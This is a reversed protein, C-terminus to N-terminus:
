KDDDGLHYNELDEVGEPSQKENYDLVSKRSKNFAESGGTAKGEGTEDDIGTFAEGLAQSVVASISEDLWDNGLCGELDKEISKLTGHKIDKSGHMPVVTSCLGCQYVAHSGKQRVHDCGPERNKRLKKALKKSSMVTREALAEKVLHGIVEEITEMTEMDIPAEKTKPHRQEWDEPVFDKPAAVNGYAQAGPSHNAAAMEAHGGTYDVHKILKKTADPEHDRVLKGQKYRESGGPTNSGQEEIKESTLAKKMEDTFVYHYKNPKFGKPPKGDIKASNDRPHAIGDSTGIAVTKIEEPAHTLRDVGRSHGAWLDAKPPTSFPEGSHMQVDYGEDELFSRIEKYFSSAEQSGEIYKPNGKIIVATKRTESNSEFFVSKLSLKGESFDLKLQKAKQTGYKQHRQKDLRAQIEDGYNDFYVSLMKKREKHTLAKVKKVVADRSDPGHYIVAAQILDQLVERENEGEVHELAGHRRLFDVLKQGTLIHDVHVNNETFWDGPEVAPPYEDYYGEVEWNEPRRRWGDGYDDDEEIEKLVALMGWRRIDEITVEGISKGIKKGIHYRIAGEAKGMDDKQAAFTVGELTDDDFEMGYSDKVFDGLEGSFGYKEISEKNDIVTGHYLTREELSDVGFLRKFQGPAFSLGNLRMVDNVYEDDELYVDEEGDGDIDGEVEPVFDVPEEVSNMRPWGPLDRHRSDSAVARGAGGGSATGGQEKLEREEERRQEEAEDALVVVEDEVVRDSWYDKRPDTIYMSDLKQPSKGVQNLEEGPFSAGVGGKDSIGLSDRSAPYGRGRQQKAQFNAGAEADTMQKIRRVTPDQKKALQKDGGYGFFGGYFSEAGSGHGQGAYGSEELAEVLSKLSKRRKPM